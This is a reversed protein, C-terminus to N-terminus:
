PDIDGKTDVSHFLTVLIIILFIILLLGIMGMIVRVVLKSRPVDKVKEMMNNKLENAKDM